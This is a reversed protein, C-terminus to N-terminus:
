SIVAPSEQKPPVWAPSRMRACRRLSGWGGELFAGRDDIGERKSSMTSRHRSFSAELRGGVMAATRRSSSFMQDSSFAALGITRVEDPQILFPHIDPEIKSALNAIVEAYKEAYPRFGEIRMQAIRLRAAAVMNMARTIQETKKVAAIQRQIDRLTAM